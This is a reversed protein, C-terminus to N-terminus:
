PAGLLPIIGTEATVKKVTDLIADRVIKHLAVTEFWMTLKRGEIRTKLRANVEYHPAGEFPQIAATIIQPVDISESRIQGQVGVDEEYNLRNGGDKLRLMTNFRVDSKGHLTSVLELLDAGKLSGAKVGNFLDANDELWTAFEVQTMAKRNAATWRKWEETEVLSLKAMHHCYEPMPRSNAVPRHYDIIATLNAGTQTVTAFILTDVNKFRNVYECFSGADILQVSQKVRVPPCFQALSQVQYNAPVLAFPDGNDAAKRPSSAIVGNDLLLQLTDKPLM